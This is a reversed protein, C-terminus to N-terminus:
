QTNAAEAIAPTAANKELFAILPPNVEEPMEYCATHGAEQIAHFAIHPIAEQVHEHHGFPVVHDATGWILLSPTDQAGVREYVPALSLLPNNRYTSLLARKYGHYTMQALFEERYPTGEPVGMRELAAPLKADGFAQLLWEGVGPWRMASYRPDIDLPFGAPALLAFARVKEPHRDVFHVTIAGGMSLGVLSVPADIDFAGLLDALQRDFVEATYRLHPRDSYGRGFLDYRLVRFGASALAPATHDWISCPGTYGHILVVVPGDPPGAWEYRTVGESLQVFDLGQTQELHTREQADLTRAEMDPMIFPYAAVGLCVVLLLGGTRVAYKKAKRM